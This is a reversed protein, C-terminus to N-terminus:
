LKDENVAIIALLVFKAFDDKKIDRYKTPLNTKYVTHCEVEGNGDPYWNIDVEHKLILKILLNGDTLPNYVDRFIQMAYPNTCGSGGLPYANRKRDHDALAGKIKDYLGEIKAIAECLELDTLESM